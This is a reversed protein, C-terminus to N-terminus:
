GHCRKEEGATFTMGVNQTFELVFEKFTGGERTFLFIKGAFEAFAFEDFFAAETVMGKEVAVIGIAVLHHAEVIAHISTAVHAFPAVIIAGLVSFPHLFTEVDATTGFNFGVFEPFSDSAAFEKGGTFTGIGRSMAGLAVVSTQKKARRHAQSVGRAGFPHSPLLDIFKEVRPMHPRREDEFDVIKEKFRLFLHEILQRFAVAFVQGVGHSIRSNEGHFDGFTSKDAFEHLVSVKFTSVFGLFTVSEPAGLLTMFPDLNDVIQLVAFDLVLAVLVFTVFVFAVLGAISVNLVGIGLAGEFPTVNEFGQLADFGTNM